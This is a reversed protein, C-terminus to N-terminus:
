PRALDIVFQESEPSLHPHHFPDRMRDTAWRQQLAALEGAFRAKKEPSIDKGRSKSEHHILTARPEYLSQWGRQNLRLCLDVDNFAVPFAEEDFGGISLFKARSVVLCAATVASVVQPLRARDFYGVAEAPQFRHAHGAASCVGVVVGAHQVTGDPYLLRAGVAGVDDRTAQVALTELWTPELMEVDNNLLCVLDGNSAAVAANNLASFNFPGPQRLVLVGKAEYAALLELADIEDSGNDVIIVELSPYSTAEVGELCTRLLPAQNRTPIIVSITPRSAGTFRLPEVPVKPQSRHVRHHLVAPLHVPVAGRNLQFALLAEAWDHIPLRALDERRAAILCSGTLFDHHAFLEANWGPKFYPERRHGDETVLDDDAYLINTSISAGAAYVSAANTSLRDGASMPCIWISGQRPLLDALESPEAITPLGFDSQGGLLIPQWGLAMCSSISRDLGSLGSQCDIVCWVPGLQTPDALNEALIKRPRELWLDYALPSRGLLAAFRQRSRVRLRRARWFTAELYRVPEERLAHLHARLRM